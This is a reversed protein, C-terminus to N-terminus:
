RAGAKAREAALFAVLDRRFLVFKAGRKHAPIAKTYILERLSRQCIAMFKAADKLSMAGDAAAAADVPTAVVPRAATVLEYAPAKRPM